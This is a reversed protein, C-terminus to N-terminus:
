FTLYICSSRMVRIVRRILSIMRMVRKILDMVAPLVHFFIIEQNLFFLLNPKFRLM